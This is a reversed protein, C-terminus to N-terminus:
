SVLFGAAMLAAYAGFLVLTMPDDASPEWYRVFEAFTPRYRM